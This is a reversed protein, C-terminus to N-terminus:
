FLRQRILRLEIIFSYDVITLRIIFHWHPNYSKKNQWSRNFGVAEALNIDLQRFDFFLNCTRPITTYYICTFIIYM